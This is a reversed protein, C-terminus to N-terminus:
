RLSTDEMSIYYSDIAQGAEYEDYEEIRIEGYKGSYIIEYDKYPHNALAAPLDSISYTYKKTYESYGYNFSYSHNLRTTYSTGLQNVWSLLIEDAESKDVPFKGYSARYVINNDNARLYGQCDRGLWFDVWHSDKEDYEIKFGYDRIKNTAEDLSLGIVQNLMAVAKKSDFSKAGNKECATLCCLIAALALISLKKM